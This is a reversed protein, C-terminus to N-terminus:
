QRDAVFHDAVDVRVQIEEFILNQKARLFDGVIRFYGATETQHGDIRSQFGIYETVDVGSVYGTCSHHVTDATGAVKSTVCEQGAEEAVAGCLAALDGCNNRHAGMNVVGFMIGMYENGFLADSINAAQGRFFSCLDDDVVDSMRRESILEHVVIFSCACSAAFALGRMEKLFCEFEM